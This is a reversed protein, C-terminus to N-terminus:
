RINLGESQEARQIDIPQLVKNDRHHISSSDQRLEAETKFLAGKYSGKDGRWGQKTLSRTLITDYEDILVCVDEGTKEALENIAANFLEAPSYAYREIPLNYKKVRDKIYDTLSSKFTEIGETATVHSMDLHIVPYPHFDYDSKGLYLEDFLERRGELAAELMSVFLTKGFRRPRAMFRFVPEDKATLLSYAYESKDILLFDKRIFSEFASASTSITKMEDINYSM